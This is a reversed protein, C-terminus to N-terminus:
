ENIIVGTMRMVVNFEPTGLSRGSISIGAIMALHEVEERDLVRRLSGRRASLDLGAPEISVISPDQGQRDLIRDAIQRARGLPLNGANIVVPTRFPGDGKPIRIRRRQGNSGSGRVQITGTHQFTANQNTPAQDELHNIEQTMVEIQDRGRNSFVDIRTSIARGTLLTVDDDTEPVENLRNADFLSQRRLNGDGDDFELVIGSVDLIESKKLFEGPTNLSEWNIRSSETQVSRMKASTGPLKCYLQTTKTYGVKLKYDYKFLDEKDEISVVRVLDDARASVNTVERYVVSRTALTPRDLDEFFDFIYRTITTRQWGLQGYTGTEITEQETRPTPEQSGAVFNEGFDLIVCNVLRSRQSSKQFEAYKSSSLQRIPLAPPLIGQPDTIWINNFDDVHYKPEFIGVEQAAVSHFSQEVGINISNLRYTEINTIVSNFGLKDVYIYNLLQHLDFDTKSVLLPEITNYNEDILESPASGFISIPDVVEPDYLVIQQEPALDWKDALSGSITVTRDDGPWRIVKSEGAFIGGSIITAWNISGGVEIGIEFSIEETDSLDLSIDALGFILRDSLQGAEASYDFNTIPIEVDDIIIRSYVNYDRM